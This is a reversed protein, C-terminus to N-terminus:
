EGESFLFKLQTDLTQLHDHLEPISIPRLDNLEVQIKHDASKKATRAYFCDHIGEVLGVLSGDAPVRVITLCLTNKQLHDPVGFESSIVDVEITKAFTDLSLLCVILIILNKM